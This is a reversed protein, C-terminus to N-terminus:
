LHRELIEIAVDIGRNFGSAFVYNWQDHRKLARVQEIIEGIDVKTNQAAKYDITPHPYRFDCSETGGCFPCPKLESM